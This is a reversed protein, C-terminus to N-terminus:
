ATSGPPRRVARSPQRARATQRPTAAVTRVVRRLHAFGLSSPMDAIALGYEVFNIAKTFKRGLLRIIEGRELPLPMKGSPSSRKAVTCM